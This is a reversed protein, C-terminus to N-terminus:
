VVLGLDLSTHKMGYKAIVSTLRVFFMAILRYLDLKEFINYTILDNIRYYYQNSFLAILLRGFFIRIYIILFKNVIESVM